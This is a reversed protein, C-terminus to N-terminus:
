WNNSTRRSSENSRAPSRTPLSPVSATTVSIVSSVLGSGRWVPMAMSKNSRSSLAARATCSTTSKSGVAQSKIDELQQVRLSLASTAAVPAAENLKALILSQGHDFAKFRSDLTSILGQVRVDTVAVVKDLVQVLDELRRLRIDYDRRGASFETDDGEGFRSEPM